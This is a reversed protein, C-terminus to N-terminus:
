NAGLFNEGKKQIDRRIICASKIESSGQSREKTRFTLTVQEVAYFCVLGSTSATVEHNYLNNPM